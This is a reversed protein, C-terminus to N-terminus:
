PLNLTAATSELRCQIHDYVGRLGDRLSVRPRWGDLVSAALGCNFAQGWILTPHTQDWTLDISKGSISIIEQALQGITVRDEAGLNFPGVVSAQELKEVSRLIAEITDAVYHYSRTEKGSGLVLFPGQAPYEIARRCFVPIASGTALDLSQNPGYAGIIRAISVHTSCGQRVDNLLLQEGILKAWGYSLEPDAPYAQEERILPSDPSQQLERPYIHASSAYFYCPVGLDLAARWMNHDILTNERFVSGMQEIYYRIGGVKSALHIVVDIDRCCDRCVELSRLDQVRFDIQPLASGLYEKRGRELNDVARVAIGEGVLRTVLNSGIFGAGGTVLVRKNMWWHPNM